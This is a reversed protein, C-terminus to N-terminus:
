VCKKSNAIAAQGLSISSDNAPLLQNYYVRFKNQRLLSVTQELLLRNQFVGGCLAVTDASTKKRLIACTERVMSSVSNHFKRAIEERSIRDGIDEVIGSVLKDSKVMMIEKSRDITFGYSGATRCKEAFYQLRIAAQAEYTIIDCIGLLASVGDFLRGMSSTLVKNLGMLNVLSELKEEHRKLLELDLGYIDRGYANYLYSIAMRYPESTAKDGGPMPVYELHAQRKFGNLGGTFFEGGWFKSDEGYGLGDFCVGIIDKKIRHEAIVSALHAKHHQVAEIKLSRDGAYLSRCYRTSLYDPHLDHCILRPKIAFLSSLKQIAEQYFDFTLATKLDGIYQSLFASGGKALCFTNKLEAGCALTPEFKQGAPFPFPAYGRGRRLVVPRGDMVQVISDDCRNHIKRDNVLFCGCIDKLDRFARSNEIEIPEDSINASTMVLAQLPRGASLERSFLLYHLPTYGLMIGLYNNDPALLSALRTQSKKQLLVIPREPSELVNKEIGSVTCLAKAADIDSVMLAFPKAPRHKLRRLKKISRQNYGDCAIHFGGVGKIAVIGGKKLALITETIAKTGSAKVRSGKILQVKPGCEACCDPQAHYRRNNLDLFEGRCSPCMKFKNMTTQQRDYPLGLIISFRPGCNTCNIFPYLYRRDSKSLLEKRCDPCTAIDPSVLCSRNASERSERINFGQYGRSKVFDFRAKTLKALPPLGSILRQYFFKLKKPSSEAHIEVGASTNLVFGNIKSILALRHVFPRFGVGQVVGEFEIRAAKVMGLIKVYILRISLYNEVRFNVRLCGVQEQFEKVFAPNNLIMIRCNNLHWFSRMTFTLDTRAAPIVPM